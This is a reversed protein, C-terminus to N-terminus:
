LKCATYSLITIDLEVIHSVKRYICLDLSYNQFDSLVVYYNIRRWLARLQSFITNAIIDPNLMPKMEPNEAKYTGRIM